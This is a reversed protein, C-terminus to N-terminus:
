RVQSPINNNNNNNNNNNRIFAEKTGLIPREPLLVRAYIYDKHYMESITFLQEPKM